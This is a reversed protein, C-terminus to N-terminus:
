LFVERARERRMECAYGLLALRDLDPELVLRPDTLLVAEDPLPRALPRPRDLGGVLAILVGVQKARDARGPADARRQRQGEGVGVHHLEVDIFDGEVDGLSRVGHQQEVPCSPV